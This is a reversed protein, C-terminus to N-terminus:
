DPHKLYMLTQSHITEYNIRNDKKAAACATQICGHLYHGFEMFCVFGWLQCDSGECGFTVKM